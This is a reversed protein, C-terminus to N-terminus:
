NWSPTICKGPCPTWQVCLLETGITMRQNGEGFGTVRLLNQYDLGEVFDDNGRYIGKSLRLFQRISEDYDKITSSAMPAANAAGMFVHYHVTSVTM